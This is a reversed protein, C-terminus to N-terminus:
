HGRCERVHCQADGCSEMIVQAVLGGDGRTGVGQISKCWWRDQTYYLGTWQLFM